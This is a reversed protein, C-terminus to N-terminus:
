FVLAAGKTKKDGSNMATLRMYRVYLTQESFPATWVWTRFAQLTETIISGQDQM